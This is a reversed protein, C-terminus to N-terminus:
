EWDYAQSTPTMWLNKKRADSAQGLSNYFQKTVHVSKDGEDPADYYGQWSRRQGFPDPLFGSKNQQRYFPFEILWSVTM